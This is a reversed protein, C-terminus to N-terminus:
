LTMINKAKKKRKAFDNMSFLSCLRVQFFTTFNYQIASDYVIKELRKMTMLAFDEEEDDNDDDGSWWWWGMMMMMMM